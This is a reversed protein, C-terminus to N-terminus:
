SYLCQQMCSFAHGIIATNSGLDLPVSWHEHNPQGGILLSHHWHTPLGTHCAQTESMCLVHWHCQTFPGSGRNWKRCIEVPQEVANPYVRSLHLGHPHSHALIVRYSVDVMHIDQRWLQPNFAAVQCILRDYKIWAMGKIGHPRSSLTTHRWFSHM